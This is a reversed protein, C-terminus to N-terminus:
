RPFAFDSPVLETAVREGSLTDTAPDLFAIGPSDGGLGIWVRGDPGETFAAIPQDVLGAVPEAAITGAEPDAVLVTADPFTTPTVLYAKTGTLVVADTFFGRNEEESGDDIVLANAYSTADISELGGTYPDGPVEPNLSFNGRGVVWLQGSDTDHQLATPNVTELAIGPLGESDPDTDIELGTALDFVAVYGPRTPDFGNELREILVFLRGDVIVMDTANPADEDYAGLDFRTEVFDAEGDAGVSPDIVWLADDGYRTVYGFGAEDFVVDQPNADVDGENASFEWIPASTDDAAYRAITSTGFAAIEIMDGDVTGVRIDSVTAPYSGDVVLGEGDVVLRDVRGSGFDPARTAVFAAVDGDDGSANPGPVDDSDDDSGCAALAVAALLLPVLARTRSPADRRESVFRRM